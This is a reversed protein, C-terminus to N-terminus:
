NTSCFSLDKPPYDVLRANHEADHFAHQRNAHVPRQASEDGAHRRLAHQRGGHEHRGAHDGAATWAHEARRVAHTYWAAHQPYRSYTGQFFETM